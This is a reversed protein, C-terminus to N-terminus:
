ALQIRRAVQLPTVAGSCSAKGKDTVGANKLLPALPTGGWRATGIGSTFWQFGHNAACELTYAVEQKPLAKLATLNLATPQKVLGGIQLNWSKEEIVPKNYHAVRFFMDSAALWSALEQSPQLNEVVGGSPNAPPQDPWPLVEEGTRSPFGHAFRSATRRRSDNVERKAPM